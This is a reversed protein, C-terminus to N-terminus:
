HQSSACYEQILAATSLKRNKEAVEAPSNGNKDTANVDSVPLLFRCVEDKGSRSALHLPTFELPGSHTKFMDSNFGPAETLMKIVEIRGRSAYHHVLTSCALSKSHVGVDAGAAILREAVPMMGEELASILPTDGAADVTNVDIGPM